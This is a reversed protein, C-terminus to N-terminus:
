HWLINLGDPEHGQLHLKGTAKQAEGPRFYLLIFHESVPTLRAKAM